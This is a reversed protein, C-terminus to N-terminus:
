APILILEIEELSKGKTEILYNHVYFVALLCVSAFGVYVSSVGVKSVVPLFYLGIAFNSVWHVGMALAVAKARIQSPFIEPLLLGPVPGAGLAFSFVYTVTGAVALLGAYSALAPWSLALALVFMSASMGFYSTILLNKRGKKDMLSSAILSGIVNAAGVLASAAVDSKIGATRFVATSYYVVANIGAFQQLIFLIAGVTVVAFYKSSFLDGWGKEEQSSGGANELEAVAEEVKDKGWLRKIADEAETKRGQKFLWRPSEPAYAMGLFLLAAPVAAVAFMAKWWSPNSTLPLGIILSVLIGINITLQHVSGLSGRIETPSIEAIYLPIIASAIGVGVGVAFRGALMAQVGKASASLLAGVILPVADLQFTRTRGFKDALIGGTFSGLTAGVLTISVVWGQIAANTAIDLDTALFQLAPNVVGLHYGFLLSGLCAVAVSFYLSGGVGTSAIETPLLSEADGTGAAAQSRVSYFQRNKLRTRAADIRRGFGVGLSLGLHEPQRLAMAARVPARHVVSAGRGVVSGGHRNFQGASSSESIPGQLAVSASVARRLMISGCGSGGLVTPQM